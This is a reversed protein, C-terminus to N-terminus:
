PKVWGREVNQVRLNSTAQEGMSRKSLVIGNFLGLKLVVVHPGEFAGQILGWGLEAYSNEGRFTMGLEGFSVTSPQRSLPNKVWLRKAFMRWYWPHLLFPTTGGALLGAGIASPVRGWHLSLLIAGIGSGVVGGILGWRKMGAWLLSLGEYFEGFELQQEFQVVM